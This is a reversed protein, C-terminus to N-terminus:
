CDYFQDGQHSNVAAVHPPWRVVTDPSEEIFSCKKQETAESEVVEESRYVFTGSVEWEVPDRHTM